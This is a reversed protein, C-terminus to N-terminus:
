AMVHADTTGATGLLHTAGNGSGMVNCSHVRSQTEAPHAQYANRQRRLEKYRVRANDFFQRDQKCKRVLWELFACGYRSSGSRPQYVFDRRDILGYVRKVAVIGYTNIQRGPSSAIRDNVEKVLEKLKYPHTLNPDLIKYAPAAPDIQIIEEATTGTAVPRGQNNLGFVIVGGASNAMAMIDQIIEVWDKNNSADFREKFDVEPSESSTQLAQDILEEM